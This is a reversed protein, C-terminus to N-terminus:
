EFLLCLIMQATEAMNSGTDMSCKQLYRHADEESFHNREMLLRKANKIDTEEKESRKRVSKEKKIRRELQCLAMEATNVLDLVKFPAALSLIGHEAEALRDAKGLLIFEFYDPLSDYLELYYMDPLRLASIVLGYEHQNVTQLALSASPCAVVHFFGHGILVNKIKKADELKPLAVVIVRM